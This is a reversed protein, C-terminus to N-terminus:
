AAATKEASAKTAAEAAAAAASKKKQEALDRTRRKLLKVKRQIRKLKKSDRPSALVEDKEKKLQRITQKLNSLANADM